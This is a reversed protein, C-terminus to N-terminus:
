RIRHVFARAIPPRLDGPYHFLEVNPSADDNIDLYRNLVRYRADVYHGTKGGFDVGSTCYDESGERSTFSAFRPFCDNHDDLCIYWAMGHQRLNSACQARRAGERAKGMVPLLIAALLSIIAIVVLLKILTFGHLSICQKLRKVTNNM